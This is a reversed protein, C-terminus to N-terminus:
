RTPDGPDAEEEIRRGQEREEAEGGPQLWSRGSLPLVDSLGVLALLDQLECSARRLRVECGLRRASLQLRALLDLTVVDPAILAGVDCVVQGVGGGALLLRVRECLWPVDARAVPDGM